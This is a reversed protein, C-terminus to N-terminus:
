KPGAPTSGRDSLQQFDPRGRFSKFVEESEILETEDPGPKADAAARKWIAIARRLVAIVTEQHAPAQDDPAQALAAYICAVNHLILYNEAGYLLALDAERQAAAPQKQIARVFGLGTHAEANEPDVSVAAAFDASASTHQNLLERAWGRKVLIKTDKPALELARTYALIAQDVQGAHELTAGLDDFLDHARGGSAVASGLEAVALSLLAMGSPQRRKKLPLQQFLDRLLHGRLGHVVWARPDRQSEVNLYADLDHLGRDIKGQSIHVQARYLFVTRSRPNEAVVSDFDDLAKQVEGRELYIQGRSFAAEILRRDNPPELVAHFDALALDLKGEQWYVVGRNLRAPRSDANLRIAQDLDRDADDYRKQQALALGRVSYGWPADPRLAVCAGLAEVAEAFRSLSLFSRGLQLHSWYHDPDIRLAQRYEDIAREM